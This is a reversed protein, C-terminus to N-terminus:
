RILGGLSNLLHLANREEQTASYPAAGIVLFTHQTISGASFDDQMHAAMKQGPELVNPMALKIFATYSRTQTGFDPTRFGWSRSWHQNQTVVGGGLLDTVTNNSEDQVQLQIGNSLESVDGYEDEDLDQGGPAIELYVNLESIVVPDEAENVWEFWRENAGSYDQIANFVSPNGRETMGALINLSM